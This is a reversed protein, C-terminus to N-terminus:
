LNLELGDYSIHFHPGGKERVLKELENHPLTKHGIHTFYIQKAKLKNGLTLGELISQHSKSSVDLRSGDFVVLDVGKVKDLTEKPLGKMDPAYFIKKSDESVLIGFSSDTHTVPLLSVALGNTEVPTFSETKLIKYENFFLLGRIKKFTTPHIIIGIKNRPGAKGKEKSLYIHGLDQFGLTHDPHEHTIAASKIKTPDVGPNNLHTYTDIGVDLLLSDNILLQSRSRTDKSSRSSCILCQCGLRPLPWGASTGLFKIKM